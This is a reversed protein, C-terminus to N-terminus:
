SNMTKVFSSVKHRDKEDDAEVIWHNCSDPYGCRVPCESHAKIGRKRLISSIIQAKDREM